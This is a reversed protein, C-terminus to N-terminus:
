FHSMIKNYTHEVLYYEKLFKYGNEGMAKRDSAIMKDVPDDQKKRSIGVEACIERQTIHLHNATQNLFDGFSQLDKDSLKM